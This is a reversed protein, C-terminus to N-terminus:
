EGDFNLDEGTRPRRMGRRARATGGNRFGKIGNLRPTYVDPADPQEAVGDAEVFRQLQLFHEGCHSGKCPVGCTKCKSPVPITM